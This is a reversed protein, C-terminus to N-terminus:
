RAVTLMSEETQAADSRSDSNRAAYDLIRSVVDDNSLRIARIRRHGAEAIRARLPEDGLLRRCQQACEEPSDWFVAERDEAFMKLHETTREACLLGGIFPIESSRQTHFDRNGKSLLGLAIRSCQVAKVYDPGMVSTGRLCPRLSSWEPSKSWHDGYISLPIRLDLLRRLFPGREPMWTGVFVVESAWRAHEDPTMKRRRHEVPDYSMWVRIVRRAGLVKAEAVNSERLVCVLDYEPISRKFTDWARGDRSGYPDDNNYNLVTGFRGRLWHVLRPGVAAGGNVWVLDFDRNALCRQVKHSVHDAVLRYGTRYNLAGLFRNTPLFAGPDLIEVRHGLRMMARARALSTSHERACGLYLIKM